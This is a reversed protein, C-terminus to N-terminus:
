LQSREAKYKWVLGTMVGVSQNSFLMGKRGYRLYEHSVGLRWTVRKFQLDLTLQQHLNHRNIPHSFAISGKVNVGESVEYYSTWYDPLWEIGVINATALYRLRYATSKCRFVCSAGLIVDADLGIDFSYPKNVNNSIERMRFDFDAYPGLMLTIEPLIPSISEANWTWSYMAGWGGQVGLNYIRNSYAINFCRGGSLKVNGVHNWEGQTRNWTQIKSQRFPQWWENGIRIYQGSYLLPSLYSDAIWEGGWELHLANEHELPEAAFLPTTPLM